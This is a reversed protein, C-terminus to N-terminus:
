SPLNVLGQPPNAHIQLQPLPVSGVLHAAETRAEYLIDVRTAHWNRITPDSPATPGTPPVLVLLVYSDLINQDQPSTFLFLQGSDDSRLTGTLFFGQEELTSGRQGTRVILQPGSGAAGPDLADTFQGSTMPFGFQQTFTFGELQSSFGLPRNDSPLPGGPMQVGSNGLGSRRGGGPTSSQALVTNSVLLTVALLAFVSPAAVRSPM